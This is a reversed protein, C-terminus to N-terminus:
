SLPLNKRTCIAKALNLCRRMLAQKCNSLDISMAKAEPNLAEKLDIGRAVLPIHGQPQSQCITQTTSKHDLM